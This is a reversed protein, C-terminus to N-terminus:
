FDEIEEIALSDDGLCIHLRYGHCNATNWEFYQKVDSAYCDLFAMMTGGHAVLYVDNEGRAAIARLFANMAIRIRENFQARSEGDPCPDECWSDVWNRYDADDAMEDASRGTFAGFDMEQIDEVVVQEANPFMIAATEHTRKLTSVYVRQVDPFHPALRAQERGEESLSEDNKSGVYRRVANGPTQGHRIITLQLRVPAESRPSETTTRGSSTLEAAADAAPSADPAEMM